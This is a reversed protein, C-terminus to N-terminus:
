FKGFNLVDNFFDTVGEIWGEVYADESDETFGEEQRMEKVWDKLSDGGLGSKYADSGYFVSADWDNLPEQASAIELLEEYPLRGADNIGAKIGMKNFQKNYREDYQEKETKLREITEMKDGKKLLEWKEIETKLAAQCIGSINIRDKVKELRKHLAEPVSINLREAMDQGKM